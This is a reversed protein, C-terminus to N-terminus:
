FRFGLGTVLHHTAFTNEITAAGPEFRQKTTTYKYEGLWFVRRTLDFEGGGALQIAAGHFQYENLAAGFARIEPHPLAVGLGARFSVNLRDRLEHRFVLNGLLLNLGHSVSYQQLVVAPALRTAVNGVTALSGSASVPENVRAFAKIHIFEGEFGVTHTFTYGARVGYYLPGEFSRDDFGVNNFKVSSTAGDAVHIDADATHAKGIYASAAWQASASVPALTSFLVCLCRKPMFYYQSVQRLIIAM